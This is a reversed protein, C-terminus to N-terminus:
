VPDGSSRSKFGPHIMKKYANAVSSLQISMESIKDTSWTEPSVWYEAKHECVIALERDIHRLPIAAAAWYKALQAETEYNRKYDRAMGAYYIQTEKLATSIARLANDRLERKDKELTAIPGLLKTLSEVVYEIM